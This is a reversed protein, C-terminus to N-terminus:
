KWALCGITVQTMGVQGKQISVCCYWKEMKQFEEVIIGDILILVPSGFNISLWIKKLEEYVM